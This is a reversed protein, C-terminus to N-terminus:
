LVIASNPPGNTGQIAAEITSGADVTLGPAIPLIGASIEWSGLGTDITARTQSNVRVLTVARGGMSGAATVLFVKGTPVVYPAGEKIQVMDRPNPGYAVVIASTPAVPALSLAVLLIASFMVGLLVSLPHVTLSRNM